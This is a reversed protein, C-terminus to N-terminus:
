IGDEDIHELHFNTRPNSELATYCNMGNMHSFGEAAGMGCCETSFSSISECIVLAVSDYSDPLADTVTRFSPEIGLRLTVDDTTASKRRSYKTTRIMPKERSGCQHNADRSLKQKAAHFSVPVVTWEDKPLYWASHTKKVTPEGTLDYSEAM